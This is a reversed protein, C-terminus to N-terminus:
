INCLFYGKPVVASGDSLFPHRKATKYKQLIREIYEPSHDELFETTMAFQGCHECTVYYSYRDDLIYEKPLAKGCVPCASGTEIVM